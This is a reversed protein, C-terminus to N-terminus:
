LTDKNLDKLEEPFFLYGGIGYGEDKFEIANRISKCNDSNIPTKSPKWVSNGDIDNTVTRLLFHYNHALLIDFITDTIKTTKM